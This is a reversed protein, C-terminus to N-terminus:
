HDTSPPDNCGLPAVATKVGGATVVLVTNVMVDFIASPWPALLLLTPKTVTSGAASENDTIGVVTTPPLLACPVMVRAFGAADPPNDTGKDLLSGLATTGALTVTGAPPKLALKGTVM